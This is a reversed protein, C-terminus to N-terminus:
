PDVLGGRRVPVSRERAGEDRGGSVVRPAPPAAPLRTGAPGAARGGDSRGAVGPELTTGTVSLQHWELVADEVCGVYRRQADDDLLPALRLTASSGAGPRVGLFRVGVGLDLACYQGVTRAVEAVSTTPGRSDVRVTMTTVGPGIPHSWYHSVRYVGATTATAGVGVGV